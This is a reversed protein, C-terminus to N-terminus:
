LKYLFELSERTKQIGTVELLVSAESFYEKYYEKFKDWDTKGAGLPLHLDSVFDNDNIHLHRVYPALSKVWEDIKNEDGFVHAHAYDFCIGFNPVDKMAEGLRALLECDTDFMNEIYINIDSYKELKKGWYDANRKIWNDRYTEQYFNPIYNTHFIVAKAGLQMAIGLSEEVRFDSVERIRADDSFVSVDLFAGHMTCYAPLDPKMKYFYIREELRDGNDLLDPIFFDNYEFGCGYKETLKLYEEFNDHQPIVLLKEINM